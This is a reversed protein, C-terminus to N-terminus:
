RTGEPKKVRDLMEDLRTLKERIKGRESGVAIEHADLAKWDSFSTWHVNRADLLAPIVDDPTGKPNLGEADALMHAVTAISDGRNTGILGSPGRKAWGVVYEGRRVQRTEPDVVRGDENAIIGWREDFAVGPIPVGRYGVARFVLGVPLVETEGTPVAVVKNGRRELRNREIRLGEVRDTGLIEVPSVAFRLHIKRPKTGPPRQAVEALYAVNKAVNRDELDPRSVDDIEIEGPELLLDACELEGLEKIEPPTFSAQAVGRRGLVWIERVGSKRLAEVAYSTMDTGHLRQDPDCALVRTVDMAVNGVGVVVAREASLDFDHDRHDPHGNYWGVFATASHSGPLDEGPIGLRRDNENGVAYVWQDYHAALDSVQLDRGLMVNGFFRFGETSAVRDYLKIVSKISQHDPAVGGRVLGYPTPLRDFMDIRVPLPSKLWADAAYFGSPGSGVIAIRLPTEM